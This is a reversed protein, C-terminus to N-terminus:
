AAHSLCNSVPTAASLRTQDWVLQHSIQPSNCLLKPALGEGLVDTKKKECETGNWCHEVKM